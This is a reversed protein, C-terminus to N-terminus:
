EFRIFNEAVADEGYHRILEDIEALLTDDEDPDITGDGVLRATLGNAMAQRVAGLTPAKPFRSDSTMTEIIRSLSESAKAAVFDIALVEGGFEEILSNVEALVSTRDQPHLAALRVAERTSREQLAARVEDLTPAEERDPDNVLAEIIASLEPSVRTAVDIPLRITM